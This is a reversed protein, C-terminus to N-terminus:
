LKLRERLIRGPAFVEIGFSAAHPLFDRVNHTVIVDAGGNIAAELVFGDAADRLQPRWQFYVNVWIARSALTDLFETIAKTSFGHVEMQEPRTLVSEYELMLASSLLVEYHGLDFIDILRRSAGKRSRFAAVIVSTDLVLRV